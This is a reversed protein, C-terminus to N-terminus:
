HEHTPLQPLSAKGKISYDAVLKLRRYQASLLKAAVEPDGDVRKLLEHYRKFGIQKSLQDCLDGLAEVEKTRLAARESKFNESRRRINQLQNQIAGYTKLIGVAAPGISLTAVAYALKGITHLDLILEMWGPSSYQISNIQPRHSPPVQHQLVTYIKVVSYGGKWTYNALAEDLRGASTSGHSDFCYIFAYAQSLGRPFEYLDALRWTGDMQIRYTQPTGM